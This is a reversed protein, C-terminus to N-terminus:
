NSVYPSCYHYKNLHNMFDFYTDEAALVHPTVNFNALHIFDDWVRRGNETSTFRQALPMHNCLGNPKTPNCDGVEPLVHDFFTVRNPFLAFKPFYRKFLKKPLSSKLRQVAKPLKRKENKIIQNIPKILQDHIYCLEGFGVQFSEKVTINTYYTFVDNEIDSILVKQTDWDLKIGLDYSNPVLNKDDTLQWKLLSYDTQYEHFIYFLPDNPAIATSLDGNFGGLSLHTKFHATFALLIAFQSWPKNMPDITKLISIVDKTNKLLTKPTSHKLLTIIEPKLMKPLIGIQNIATLWESPEWVPITGDRNWERRLCHSKPYRVTQNAFPGDMVCFNQNKDGAHGFYDWIISKEPASFESLYEWYPMSVFPNIKLMEKEMENIFWRHWNLADGFKHTASWHTAHIHTFKDFVGNEYLKKFVDILDNLESKSLCKIDKRVRLQRCPRRRPNTKSFRNQLYIRANEIEEYTFSNEHNCDMHVRKICEESDFSNEYFLYGSFLSIFLIFSYNFNKLM